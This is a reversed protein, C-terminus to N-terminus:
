SRIEIRTDLATPATLTVSLTVPDVTVSFDVVEGASTRTVVPGVTSLLHTAATISYTFPGAGSWDGSLIDTTYVATQSAIVLSAISVTQAM